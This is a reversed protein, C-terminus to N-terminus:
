PGIVDIEPTKIQFVASNPTTYDTGFDICMVVPKETVTNNFIIAAGTPGIAGGTATWTADAWKTAAIDTVGNETLAVGSLTKGNQTYGNGTAIQFATVAALNIHTAPNFAFAANMLIIIFVDNAEDVVKTKLLYKYHTPVLVTEPM